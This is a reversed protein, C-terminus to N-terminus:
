KKDSPISMMGGMPMMGGMSMMGTGMNKHQSALETIVAAMADIRDNGRAANMRAVLNDLKQNAAHMEAMMAQRRAMMDSMQGPAQAAAQDPAAGPSAQGKAVARQAVGGM